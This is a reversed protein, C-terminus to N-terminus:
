SNKPLIFSQAIFVTVFLINEFKAPYAPINEDDPFTLGFVGLFQLVYKVFEKVCLDGKKEKVGKMTFYDTYDTTGFDETFEASAM